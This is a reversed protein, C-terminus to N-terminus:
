FDTESNSWGLLLKFDKNFVDLYKHSYPKLRLENGLPSTAWTSFTHSFNPPIRERM